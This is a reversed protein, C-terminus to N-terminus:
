ARSMGEAAKRCEAFLHPNEDERVRKGQADFFYLDKSQVHLFLEGEDWDADKHCKIMIHSGSLDLM